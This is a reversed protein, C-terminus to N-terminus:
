VFKVSESRRFGFIKRYVDNRCVNLRNINDTSLDVRECGYTLIPLV